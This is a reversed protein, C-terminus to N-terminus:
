SKQEEIEDIVADDIQKKYAVFEVQVPTPDDTLKKKGFHNFFCSIGVGIGVTYALIILVPRDVEEGTLLTHINKLIDPVSADNHFTMIALAAGFFLIICVIAVKLFETAKSPPILKPTYMIMTDTEGVCSLTLSPHTKRIARAIDLFSAYLKQDKQEKVHLVPLPLLKEVLEQDGELEALDQVTIDQKGIVKAQKSPKVYVITNTAM